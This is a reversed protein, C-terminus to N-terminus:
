VQAASTNMPRTVWHEVGLRQTMPLGAVGVPSHVQEGCFRHRQWGLVVRVLQGYPTSEEPM